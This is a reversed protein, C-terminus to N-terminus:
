KLLKNHVSKIASIFSIHTFKPVTRICHMYRFQIHWQFMFQLHKFLTNKQQSIRTDHNLAIHLNYSSNHILWISLCSSILFNNRSSLALKVYRLLLTLYCQSYLCNVVSVQQALSKCMYMYVFLNEAVM